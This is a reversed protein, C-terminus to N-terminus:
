GENEKEQGVADLWAADYGALWQYHDMSAPSGLDTYVVQRNRGARFAAAGDERLKRVIERRRQRASNLGM